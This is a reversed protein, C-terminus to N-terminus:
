LTKYVQKGNRVFPAKVIDVDMMKKRIEVQATKQETRPIRALAISCNLSPSFSGSTIEGEGDAVYVKQHARLVAREKLVLGVLVLKNSAKQSLLAARGLFDRNEDTWDLTWAMAAQYPNINEDMDSGYLNMGAELRLTDRAGLGIPRIDLALLQQWFEAEQEGPLIIEYGAEGTYGTRALFGYETETGQFPALRSVKQLDEQTLLSQVKSEAEPGQIALMALESREELKISFGESQKEMWALDKERTACNVVLRYVQAYKYVILDDLIGGQENLMASYLAKGDDKLKAVDNALLYRLYAESDPGEIDVVTMHSVDFVGAHERVWHHEEIQSGYHIPMDWGGFDVIKAGAQVHQEYLPTRQNM